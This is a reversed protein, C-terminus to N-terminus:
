RDELHLELSSPATVCAKVCVGCGDCGEVKIVPRGEADEALAANGVPCVRVCVGCEQDHFAICREPDLELRAMAYGAWGNRPMLLAGTPCAAACPIDECVVCPQLVPDIVPTGAALGARAPARAIADVPCVDACADCRTCKALFSIEDIAGPPRFYRGPAVRRETREAVEQAIRGLTDRFFDRRTGDEGLRM